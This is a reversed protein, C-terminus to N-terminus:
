ASSKRRGFRPFMPNTKSRYEEFTRGFRESLAKDEAPIFIRFSIYLLLPLPVLLWSRSLLAIGPVILLIISAYLPHRVFSYPGTIVLRDRRIGKRLEVAAAYYIGVGTATLLSGAIVLVLYPVQSIVFRPYGVVHVVIAAALYPASLLGWKPGAGWTRWFGRV